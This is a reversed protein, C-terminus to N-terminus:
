LKGDGKKDSDSESESDSESGSSLQYGYTKEWEAYSSFNHRFGQNRGFVSLDIPRFSLNVDWYNTPDEEMYVPGRRRSGASNTERITSRKSGASKVDRQRIM